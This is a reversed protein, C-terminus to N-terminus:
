AKGSSIAERQMLRYPVLGCVLVLSASAVSVLALPVISATAVVGYIQAMAAGIFMQTFVGIGAATGISSPVMAIAGSQASPLAIGQALTILFGPVFLTLPSVHGSLLLTMQAAVTAFVLVSGALVM